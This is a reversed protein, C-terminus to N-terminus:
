RNIFTSCLLSVSVQLNSLFLPFGLVPSMSVSNSPSACVFATDPAPKFVLPLNCDMNLTVGLPIETGVDCIQDDVGPCNVELTTPGALIAPLGLSMVVVEEYQVLPSGVHVDMSVVSSSGAEPGEPALNDEAAGEPAPNDKTV